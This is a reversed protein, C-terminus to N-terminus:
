LSIYSLTHDLHNSFFEGISVTLRVIECISTEKTHTKWLIPPTKTSKFHAQLEASCFSLPFVQLIKLTPIVVPCVDNNEPRLVTFWLVDFLKLFCCGSSILENGRFICCMYVTLTLTVILVALAM